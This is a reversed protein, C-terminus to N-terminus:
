HLGSCGLILLIGDGAGYEYCLRDYASVEGLVMRSCKVCYGTADVDKSLHCTECYLKRDSNTVRM